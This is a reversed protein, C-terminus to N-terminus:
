IECIFYHIKITLNNTETGITKEVLGYGNNKNISPDIKKAKELLEDIFKDEKFRNLNKFIKETSDIFFHKFTPYQAKLTEIDGKIDSVEIQYFLIINNKFQYKM